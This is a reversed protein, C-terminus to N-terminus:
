GAATRVSATSYARACIAFPALVAAIAASSPMGPCVSVYQNEFSVESAVSRGTRTTARESRSGAASSAVTRTRVGPPSTM